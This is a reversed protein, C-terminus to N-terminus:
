TTMSGPSVGSLSRWSRVSSSKRLALSLEAVGELGVHAGVGDALQQGPEVEHAERLREALLQGLGAALLLHLVQGLPELDDLAEAVAVVTRLPHDQLADRDDRGVEPRQHKSSEPLKAM